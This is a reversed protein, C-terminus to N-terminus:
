YNYLLHKNHTKFPFKFVFKILLDKNTIWALYFLLKLKFIPSLRDEVLRASADGATGDIINDRIDRFDKKASEIKSKFDAGLEMMEINAIYTVTELCEAKFIVYEQIAKILFVQKKINSLAVLWQQEVIIPCRLLLFIM